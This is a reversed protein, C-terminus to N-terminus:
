SVEWATIPRVACRARDYAAIVVVRRGGDTASDIRVDGARDRKNRRVATSNAIAQEIETASVGHRTAHEVNSDDWEIVEIRV